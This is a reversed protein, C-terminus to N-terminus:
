RKGAAISYKLLVFWNYLGSVKQNGHNSLPLNDVMYNEPLSQQGVLRV